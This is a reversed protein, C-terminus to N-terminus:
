GSLRQARRDRLDPYPTRSRNLIVFGVIFVLAALLYVWWALHGIWLDKMSAAYAFANNGAHLLMGPFISGTLLATATLVIGLFSTPIIRFLSVHFLGFIIGVVVTLGTPRFRRRLGYLLTGRFAIEECIGPLIALFLIMQWAPINKPMVDSAFQEIVQSPVPIVLNALRFIGVGM